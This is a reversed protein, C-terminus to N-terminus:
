APRRRCRRCRQRRQFGRFAPVPLLWVEAAGSESARLAMGASAGARLGPPEALVQVGCVGSRPGGAPALEVAPATPYRTMAYGCAFLARRLLAFRGPRCTRARYEPEDTIMPGSKSAVNGAQGDLIWAFRRWNTGRQGRWRFSSRRARHASSPLRVAPPPAPDEHPPRRAPLQLGPSPAESFCATSPTHPPLSAKPESPFHLHNSGTDRIRATWFRVQLAGLFEAQSASLPYSDGIM